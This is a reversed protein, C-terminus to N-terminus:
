RYRILADPRELRTEEQHLSDFVCALTRNRWPRRLSGREKDDGCVELSGQAPAPGAMSRVLRELRDREEADVRTASHWSDGDFECWLEDPSVVRAAVPRLAVVPDVLRPIPCGSEVGLTVKSQLSAAQAFPLLSKSDGPEVRSSAHM